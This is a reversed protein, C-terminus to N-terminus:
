RVILAKDCEWFAGFGDTEPKGGVIASKHVNGAL